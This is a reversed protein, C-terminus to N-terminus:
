EHRKGDKNVPQVRLDTEVPRLQWSSFAYLILASWIFGFMVAHIHTFAEGFILIGITMQLVPNIYMLMGTMSYDTTKVGESYLIQPIITVLGTTPLLLWTWLGINAGEGSQVFNFYVFLMPVSLFISEINFSITSDTDVNKKIAGYATWCAGIALALWPITHTSIAFVLVGFAALAVALWQPRSLRERFFVYGVLISMIPNLFYALSADILRNNYVAYLYLAWNGFGFWAAAFLMWRLKTDRVADMWKDNLRIFMIIGATLICSWILRNALIFFGNVEVFAKWYLPTLGWFVCTILILLPGKKM